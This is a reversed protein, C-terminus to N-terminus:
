ERQDFNFMVEYTEDTNIHNHQENYNTGFKIVFTNEMTDAQINEEKIM